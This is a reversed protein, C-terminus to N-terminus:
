SYRSTWGFFHSHYQYLIIPIYKEPICLALSPKGGTHREYRIRFLIGNMVIYDECSMKFLRQAKGVYRCYGRTIYTVIDKFYPSNNYGVRLEKVTIPINYDHIVKEKLAKIFKDLKRVTPIFGEAVLGIGNLEVANIDVDIFKEPLTRMNKEVLNNATFSFGASHECLLRDKYTYKLGGATIGFARERNELINPLEINNMIHFDYNRSLGEDLIENLMRDYDNNDFQIYKRPDYSLLRRVTDPNEVNPISVNPFDITRIDVIPKKLGRYILRDSGDKREVITLVDAQLQECEHIYACSSRFSERVNYLHKYFEVVFNLVNADSHQQILLGKPTAQPRNGSRATWDDASGAGRVTGSIGAFLADDEEDTFRLGATYIKRVKAEDIQGDGDFLTFGEDFMFRAMAQDFMLAPELGPAQSRQADSSGNNATKYFEACMKMVETVEPADAWIATNRISLLTGIKINYYGIEHQDAVIEIDSLPRYANKFLIYERELKGNKKITLKRARDINIDLGYGISKEVTYTVQGRNTEERVQFTNLTKLNSFRRNIFYPSIDIDNETPTIRELTVEREGDNKVDLIEGLETQELGPRKAISDNKKIYANELSTAKRRYTDTIKGKTAEDVLGKNLSPIYYNGM